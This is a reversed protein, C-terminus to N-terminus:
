RASRPMPPTPRGLARHIARLDKLLGALERAPVVNPGDSLANQWDDHTELFVGEVGVAMAARM